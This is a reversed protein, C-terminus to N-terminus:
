ASNHRTLFLRPLFRGTRRCYDLYTAGHVALLSEEESRAKLALISLHIGAAVMMPVTPVVLVSCLMLGMSLGYIPHRVSAYLGTQILAAQQHPVVAISWSKGMKRWCGLTLLFCVLAGGAALFRAVVFLSVNRAFDPLGWTRSHSALAFWPLVNWAAVVLLGIPWFMREIPKHPVLGAAQRHRLRRVLALVLVCCWYAGLTLALLLTPLDKM